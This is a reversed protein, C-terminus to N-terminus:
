QSEGETEPPAGWRSDVPPPVHAPPPPLDDVPVAVFGPPPEYGPTVEVYGPPLQQKPPPRQREAAEKQIAERQEGVWKLVGPLALMGTEGWRISGDNKNRAIKGNGTDVIEVPSDNDEPGGYEQQGPFLDSAEQQMDRAMRVVSMAERLTDIPSQPRPSPVPPGPPPAGEQPYYPSRPGRYPERVPPAPAPASALVDKFLEFMQKMQTFQDVPAPQPPPAIIHQPVPQVVPAVPAPPQATGGQMQRVIELMQRFQETTAVQPSPAPMPPPLPQATPQAEQLMKQFAQFTQLMSNMDMGGAPAPQQVVVQPQAQQPVPPHPPPWPQGHGQSRTDPMTIRGKGRWQHTSIDKYEVSYEAEEYVGHVLKLAEYLEASSRPRSVIVQQVPAGTLRRVFVNMTGAPWSGLVTDYTSLVDGTNFNVKEGKSKRRKMEKLRRNERVSEADVAGIKRVEEEDAVLEGNEDTEAGVEELIDADDGLSPTSSSGLESSM